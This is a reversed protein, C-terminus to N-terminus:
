RRNAFILPGVEGSSVTQYALALAVPEDAPYSILTRPLAAAEAASTPAGSVPDHTRRPRRVRCALRTREGTWDFIVPLRWAIANRNTLFQGWWERERSARSVASLDTSRCVLRHGTASGAFLVARNQVSFNRAAFQNTQPLRWLVRESRSTKIGVSHQSRPMSAM